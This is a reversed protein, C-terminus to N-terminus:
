IKGIQPKTDTHESAKSSVRSVPRKEDFNTDEKVTENKEEVQLVTEPVIEDDIM